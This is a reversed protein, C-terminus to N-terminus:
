SPDRRLRPVARVVSKVVSYRVVLFWFDRVIDRAGHTGRRTGSPCTAHTTLLSKQAMRMRLEARGRGERRSAQADGREAAEPFDAAVHGDEFEAALQQDDVAPHEEGLDVLGADVQDKRVERGDPVAEVVDDADDQGVAVLVVDAGDGEQEALLGVERQDTGLQGEGEDLGLELFVADPRVGKLDDFALALADTGEVALEDGDVVGDRVRQGDGDAGRGSHDDVGAVELHVLQREVAAEGVEGGERPEALLADVQQERVGGVGLDGAEDSGFAVDGADQALDEGPGVLADDQRAEGTVDVADLLDQVGGVFAAALDGEYAPGHDAVHADGTIQAVELDGHPRTTSM